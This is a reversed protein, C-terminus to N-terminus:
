GDLYGVPSFSMLFYRQIGFVVVVARFFDITLVLGVYAYKLFTLFNGRFEM